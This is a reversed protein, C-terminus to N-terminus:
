TRGLADTIHKIPPTLIHGHNNEVFSDGEFRLIAAFNSVNPMDNVSFGLHVGIRGEGWTITLRRKDDINIMEGRNPIFQGKAEAVIKLAALIKTQIEAKKIEPLGYAWVCFDALCTADEVLNGADLRPAINTSYYDDFERCTAFFIRGIDEDSMEPPFNFKLRGQATKAVEKAQLDKDTQKIVLDLQDLDGLSKQRADILATRQEITIGPNTLLARSQELLLERQHAQAETQARHMLAFRDARTQDPRQLGVSQADSTLGLDDPEFGLLRDTPESRTNDDRLILDESTPLSVEEPM